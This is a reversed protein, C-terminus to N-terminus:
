LFRFTNPSGLTIWWSVVMLAMHKCATNRALAGALFQGRVPDQKAKILDCPLATFRGKFVYVPLQGEWTKM